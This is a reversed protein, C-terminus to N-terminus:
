GVANRRCGDVGDRCKWGRGDASSARGGLVIRM